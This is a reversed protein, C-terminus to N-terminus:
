GRSGDDEWGDDLIVIKGDDFRFERTCGDSFHIM